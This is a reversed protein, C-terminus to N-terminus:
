IWLLCAGKVKQMGNSFILNVDKVGLRYWYDKLTIHHKWDWLLTLSLCQLIRSKMRSLVRHLM